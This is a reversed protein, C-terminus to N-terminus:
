GSKSVGGGPECQWPPTWTAGVRHTNGALPLRTYPFENAPSPENPLGVLPSRAVTPSSCPTEPPGRLQKKRLWSAVPASVDSGAFMSLGLTSPGGHALGPVDSSAASTVWSIQAM